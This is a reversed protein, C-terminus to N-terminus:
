ITPPNKLLDAFLNAIEEKMIRPADYCVNNHIYTHDGMFADYYTVCSHVVYTDLQAVAIYNMRELASM